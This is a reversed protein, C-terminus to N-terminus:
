KIIDAYKSEPSKKSVRIKTWEFPADSNNYVKLFKEIAEVLEKVSKFSAAKLAARSLISFWVEIQNLWSAHTPTFHFCVNPHKKVWPHNPKLKHVSLNDLIIHIEKGSHCATVSDLFRLFEERRKRPFCRAEVQGTAVNLAAFLNTTGHRKYEHAFGTMSRGDPMKLWGQERELAQVCPKEDVSLVVANAPAGLYLAIIDASKADFEPDTSICWSRRRQLSIGLARLEKWIRVPAIGLAEGLTRGNWKTYGSPPETDIQKLIRQRLSEADEHIPPRGPRFDDRLGMLGEREFRVRWKSVTAPRTRMATAIDITSKGRAAELVIRARDGYRRQTRPARILRELEAEEETTLKILTCPRSMFGM